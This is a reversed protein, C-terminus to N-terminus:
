VPRNVIETPFMEVDEGYKFAFDLMEKEHGQFRELSGDKRMFRFVHIARAETESIPIIAKALEYRIDSLTGDQELHHYIYNRGVARRIEGNHPGGVMLASIMKM